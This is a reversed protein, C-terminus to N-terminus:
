VFNAMSSRRSTASSIGSSSWHFRMSQGPWEMSREGSAELREQCKALVQRGTMLVQAHREVVEIAEESLTGRIGM